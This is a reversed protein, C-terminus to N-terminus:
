GALRHALPSCPREHNRYHSLDLGNRYGGHRGRAWLLDVLRGIRRVRQPEGAELQYRFPGEDGPLLPRGNAQYGGAM